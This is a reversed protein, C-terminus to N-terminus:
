QNSIERATPKKSYQAFHGVFCNHMSNKIFSIYSKDAANIAILSPKTITSTNIAPLPSLLCATVSVNSNKDNGMTKSHLLFLSTHNSLFACAFCRVFRTIARSVNKNTTSITFQTSLFIKSDAEFRHSM